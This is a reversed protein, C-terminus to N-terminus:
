RMRRHHVLSLQLNQYPEQTIYTNILDDSLAVLSLKKHKSIANFLLRSSTKTRETNRLDLFLLDEHNNILDLLKQVEKEDKIEVGNLNLM